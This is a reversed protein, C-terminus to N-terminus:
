FWLCNEELNPRPFRPELDTWDAYGLSIVFNAEWSSDKFFKAKLKDPYFGSMPAVDLGLARCAIICYAGQLSSNRLCTEWTLKPDNEFLERLDMLPFLMPLKRFFETDYCLIISAPAKLVSEKNGDMMCRALEVKAVNSTIFVFRSPQSNFSTPALVVLRHLEELTTKDIAKDQWKKPTRAELFLKELSM